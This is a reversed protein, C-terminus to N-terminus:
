YGNSKVVKWAYSPGQKKEEITLQLKLGRLMAMAESVSIEYTVEKFYNVEAVDFRVEM